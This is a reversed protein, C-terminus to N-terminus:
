KQPTELNTRQQQEIAAQM